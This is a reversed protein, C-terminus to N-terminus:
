AIVNLDDRRMTQRLSLLDESFYIAYDFKRRDFILRGGTKM